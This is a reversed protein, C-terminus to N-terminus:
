RDCGSDSYRYRHHCHTRHDTGARTDCRRVDVSEATGVRPTEPITGIEEKGDRLPLFTASFVLVPTDVPYGILGFLVSEVSRTFHAWPGGPISGHVLGVNVNGTRDLVSPCM